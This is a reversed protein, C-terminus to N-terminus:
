SKDYSYVLTMLLMEIFEEKDKRMIKKEDLEQRLKKSKM